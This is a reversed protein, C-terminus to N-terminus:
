RWPPASSASTLIMGHRDRSLSEAATQRRDLEVKVDWGGSNNLQNGQMHTGWAHYNGEGGSDEGSGLQSVLGKLRDLM